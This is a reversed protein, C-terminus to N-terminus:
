PILDAYNQMKGLKGFNVSKYLPAVTRFSALVIVGCVMSQSM